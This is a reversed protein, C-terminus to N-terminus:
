NGEKIRDIIQDVAFGYRMVHYNPEFFSRGYVIGRIPREDKFLDALPRVAPKGIKILALAANYHKDGPVVTGDLSIQCRGHTMFQFARAERLFHIHIRVQEEISLAAFDKPMTFSQDEQVMQQLHTALERSQQAYITNPYQKVIKNFQQLASQRDGNTVLEKIADMYLPWAKATPLQSILRMEVESLETGYQIDDFLDELAPRVTKEMLYRCFLRYERSVADICKREKMLKYFEQASKKDHWRRFHILENGEHNLGTLHVLYSNDEVLNKEADNLLNTLGSKEGQCALAFHLASKVQLDTEDKLLKRVKPIIRDPDYINALSEAAKIRKNSDTDNFEALAQDVMAKDIDDLTTDQFAVCNGSSFALILVIYILAFKSM